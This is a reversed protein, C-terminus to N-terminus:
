FSLTVKGYYSRPVYNGPFLQLEESVGWEAHQKDTINQAAFELGLWDLAQWAVRADLRWYAGIIPDTAPNVIPQSAYVPDYRGTLKGVYWVTSDLEVPAWPLSWLGRMMWTHQPASGENTGFVQTTNAPVEDEVRLYAYSTVFRLQDLPKWNVEFEGGYARSDINNAFDVTNEIASFNTYDNYFLALDFSLNEIVYNRFGFEYALLDESQVNPNGVVTLVRIAREVRTPARVARSVSAWVVNGELFKWLVKGTPQYEFDTWNNWELKSGGIIQLRDDFYNWQVQAFGSVRHFDDEDPDFTLAGTSVLDDGNWTYETGWNFLWTGGGELQFNHQAQVDVMNRTEDVGAWTRQTNDWYAQMELSQTETFTHTWRSLVNGGKVETDPPFPPVPGTLLGGPDQEKGKYFDGQLTFLDDESLQSDLRAGARGQWWADHPERTVVDPYTFAERKFGKGYARFGTHDGVKVGVRGEGIYEQNGAIGTVLVGETDKASKTTINIVGNVANAGWLTGGPGRIVEIRDIDELMTDQVDWYVGGFLPTYVVRGDILVLMKNAFQGNYGRASIAWRSSNIRAVNLGPVLRLAEPISTAGSRRIDEQTLVTIAAAADVLNQERKAASTVTVNMLDELSMDALDDTAWATGAPVILAILCAFAIQLDAILGAHTRRPRNSRRM